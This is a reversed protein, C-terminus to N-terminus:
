SQIVPSIACNKEAVQQAAWRNSPKFNHPRSDFGRAGLDDLDLAHAWPGQAISPVGPFDVVPWQCMPPPWPVHLQHSHNENQLSCKLQMELYCCTGWTLVGHPHDELCHRQPEITVTGFKM